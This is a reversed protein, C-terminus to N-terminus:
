DYFSKLHRLLLQDQAAAATSLLHQLSLASGLAAADASADTATSVSGVPLGAFCFSRLVPVSCFGFGFRVSVCHGRSSLSPPSVPRRRHGNRFQTPADFSSGRDDTDIPFVSLTSLAVPTRTQPKVRHRFQHVRQRPHHSSISSWKSPGKYKCKNSAPPLKHISPQTTTIKDNHQLLACSSSASSLSVLVDRPSSPNHHRSNEYEARLRWENRWLM